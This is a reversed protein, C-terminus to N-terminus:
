PRAFLMALRRSGLVARADIVVPRGGVSPGAAASPGAGQALVARVPVIQMGALAPFQDRIQAATLIPGSGSVAVRVSRGGTTPLLVTTGHRVVAAADAPFVV